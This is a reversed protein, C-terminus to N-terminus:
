QQVLNMSYYYLGHFTEGSDDFRLSGPEIIYTGNHLGDIYAYASGNDLAVLASKNTDLNAQTTGLLVGTVGITYQNNPSGVIRIQVMDRGMKQKVTKPGRTPNIKTVFLVVGNLTINESYGM